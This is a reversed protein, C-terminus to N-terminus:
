KSGLPIFSLDFMVYSRMDPQGAKLGIGLHGPSIPRAASGGAQPCLGPLQPPLQDPTCVRIDQNSSWYWAELSRDTTITKVDAQAPPALILSTSVALLGAVVAGAIRRGSPSRDVRDL